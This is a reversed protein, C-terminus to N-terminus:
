EKYDELPCNDPIGLDKDGLDHYGDIIIGEKKGCYWEEPREWSDASPIRKTKFHECKTCSNIVIIKKPM